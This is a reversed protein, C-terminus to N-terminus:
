FHGSKPFGPFCDSHMRVSDQPDWACPGHQTAATPPYTWLRKKELHMKSSAFLSKIYINLIYMYINLIYICM